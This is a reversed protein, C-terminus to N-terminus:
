LIWFGISFTVAFYLFDRSIIGVCFVVSTMHNNQNRAFGLGSRSM